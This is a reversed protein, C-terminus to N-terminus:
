AYAVKWRIEERFRYPCCYADAPYVVAMLEDFYEYLDSTFKSGNVPANCVFVEMADDVGMLDCQMDMEPCYM